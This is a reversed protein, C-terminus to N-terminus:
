VTGICCGACEGEVEVNAAGGEEGEGVDGDEVLRARPCGGDGVDDDEVRGNRPGGDAADVMEDVDLPVGTAM